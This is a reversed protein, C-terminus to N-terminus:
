HWLWRTLQWTGSTTEHPLRLGSNISTWVDLQASPCRPTYLGAESCRLCTTTDVEEHSCPALAPVDRPTYLARRQPIHQHNAERDGSLLCVTQERRHSSSPEIRKRTGKCRNNRTRAVLIAVVSLSLCIMMMYWLSTSQVCWSINRTECCTAM